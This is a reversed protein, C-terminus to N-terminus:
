WEPRFRGGRFFDRAEFLFWIKFVCRGTMRLSTSIECLSIEVCDFSGKCALVLVRGRLSNERSEKGQDDKSRPLTRADRASVSKRVEREEAWVRVPVTFFAVVPLGAGPSSTM